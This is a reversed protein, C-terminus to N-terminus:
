ADNRMAGSFTFTYPLDGFCDIPIPISLPALQLLGGATGGLFTSTAITSGGGNRVTVSINELVVSFGERLYSTEVVMTAGPSSGVGQYLRGGSVTIEAGGSGNEDLLQQLPSVGCSMEESGIGSLNATLQQGPPDPFAVAYPMGDTDIGYVTGLFSGTIWLGTVFSTPYDGYSWTGEVQATFGVTSPVTSASAPRAAALTLLTCLMVFPFLSRRRSVRPRMWM